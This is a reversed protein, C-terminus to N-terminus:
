HMCHYDPDPSNAVLLVSFEPSTRVLSSTVFARSL